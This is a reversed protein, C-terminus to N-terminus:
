ASSWPAPFPFHLVPTGDLAEDSPSRRRPPRAVLRRSLPQLRTTPALEPMLSTSLLTTHPAALHPATPAGKIPASPSPPSRVSRQSGVMELKPGM